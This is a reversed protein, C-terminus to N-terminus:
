TLQRKLAGTKKLLRRLRRRLPCGSKSHLHKNPGVQVLSHLRELSTQTALTVKYEASLQSFRGGVLALDFMKLLRRSDWRGLAPDVSVTDPDDELNSPQAM